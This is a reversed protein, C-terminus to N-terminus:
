RGEANKGLTVDDPTDFVGDKGPHSLFGDDERYQLERGTYYDTLAATEGLRRHLSLALLDSKIKIAALRDSYGSPNPMAISNLIWGVMNRIPPNKVYAEMYADAQSLDVPHRRSAEILRDNYIKIDALSQNPKFGLFFVGRSLLPNQTPADDTNGTAPLASWDLLHAPMLGRMTNKMILYETILPRVLSIEEYTIPPFNERLAALTQQDMSQNQLAAWTTEIAQEAMRAFIMKHILLTAGDLGKRAVRNLRFFAEAAEGPQGASVNALFYQGYIDATEKLARFNLLPIEVNFAADEPLDCIRDFRDLAEIANHREQIDDWTAIIDQRGDPGPTGPALPDTANFFALYEFSGNSPCAVDKESYDNVVAPADAVLWATGAGMVVILAAVLLAYGRSRTIRGKRLGAALIVAALLVLLWYGAAASGPVAGQQFVLATHFTVVIAHVLLFLCAIGWVAYRIMKM